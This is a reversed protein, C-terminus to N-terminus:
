NEGTVYKEKLLVMKDYDSNIADAAGDIVENEISQFEEDVCPKIKGGQVFYASLSSFDLRRRESIVANLEEAPVAACIRDAYLLNNFAGLIYPSHTTIFMQKDGSNQVLAIFEAMLKQAAPFLHSEPEEIILYARSGSVLYYYLVNLIWVAEQQGSSAYNIRIYADESIQLREEGDQYRYHGELIERMLAEAEDIRQRESATRDARLLPYIVEQNGLLMRLHLIRELYNQTCYDLARKQIDDMGSYIYNLQSSLLTIMSRGAPIYIIEAEDHFCDNIQRELLDMVPDPHEHHRNLARDIEELLGSVDESYEFCLQKQADKGHKITVKVFTHGAYRYELCMAEDMCKVSGFIQMFNSQAVHRFMHGMDMHLVRSEQPDHLLGIKRIQQLLINRLNKFFFISKAITSKGSAQPGTCIIFDNVEMECHSVPGFHDIMIKQM